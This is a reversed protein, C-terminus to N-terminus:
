RNLFVLAGTVANISQYLTLETHLVTVASCHTRSSSFKVSESQSKLTTDCCLCFTRPYSPPLRPPKGHPLKHLTHLNFIEEHLTTPFYHSNRLAFLHYWLRSWPFKEWHFTSLIRWSLQPKVGGQATILPSPHEGASCSQAPHDLKVFVLATTTRFCLWSSNLCHILAEQSFKSIIWSLWLMRDSIFIEKPQSFVFHQTSKSPATTCFM